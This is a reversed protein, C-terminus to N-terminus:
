SMLLYPLDAPKRWLVHRKFWDALREFVSRSTLFQTPSVRLSQSECMLQNMLKAHISDRFEEYATFDSRINLTPLQAVLENTRLSVTVIRLLLKLIYAPDGATEIAYDNPDNKIETKKDIKIQYQDMIWEIVPRGNVAYEYTSAPIDSVTIAHNFVIASKDQTRDEVSGKAKYLFRM